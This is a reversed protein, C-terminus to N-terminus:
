RNPRQNSGLRRLWALNKDNKSGIECQQSDTRVMDTDLNENKLSKEIPVLYKNPTFVLTRDKIALKEGLGLVVVRKRELDDSDFEAKAYRAFTFTEDALARWNKAKVETKDRKSVLQELEQELAELESFYWGDDNIEGNYRMRRLNSIASEKRAISKKSINIHKLNKEVFDNEEIALKEIALEYFDPSITFKSLTANIQSVLQDENVHLKPQGCRVSKSKGTCHYYIYACKSNTSKVFKYKKEATISYGCEGCKFLNKFQFILENNKQRSSHKPNILTQVKEFEDQTIMASHMGPYIMNKYELVGTYFPNRFMNCITAYSVPTGGVKKRAPSLLHLDDNAFRAIDAISYTGTLFKDWLLRVSDFRDPDNIIKKDIRDNLYGIPPIGPKHGKEAKSQMGRKTSLSLDRIYQNASGAEVSFLLANDEPFYSKEATQIHKLKGDQLLQQVIGSDTPNRSLRDLKWCIIGNIKGSEIEQILEAFFPRISPRKASKSEVIPKGIVRLGERMALETMYKIQDELSQIQRDESDTSKRVYLRYNIQDLKRNFM